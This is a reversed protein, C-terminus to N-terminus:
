QPCPQSDEEEPCNDQPEEEGESADLEEESMHLEGEDDGNEPVDFGIGHHRGPQSDAEAGM